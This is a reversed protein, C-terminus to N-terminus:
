GQQVPDYTYYTLGEDVTLGVGAEDGVRVSREMWPVFPYIHTEKGYRDM